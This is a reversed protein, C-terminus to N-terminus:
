KTIDQFKLWEKQSLINDDMIPGPPPTEEPFSKLLENISIKCEYNRILLFEHLHTQLWQPQSLIVEWNNDFPYDKLKNKDKSKTFCYRNVLYFLGDNKLNRQIWIFYDQLINKPMEGLSRKNIVLDFEFNINNYINFPILIFDCDVKNIDIDKDYMLNIIKYSKNNEILYYHQLLLVEPLDIIIYKTRNFLTKFKNAFNGYGGGIEVVIKIDCNKLKIFRSVQWVAYIHYLDDFNLMKDNYLYHRPNGIDKNFPMYEFKDSIINKLSYYRKIIEKKETENYNVNYCKNNELLYFREQSPLGTELMNSIGNNRFNILSKIDKIKNYYIEDFIDWHCQKEYFVKTLINFLKNYLKTDM